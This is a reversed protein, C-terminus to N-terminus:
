RNASNFISDEEFALIAKEVSGFVARLKLQWGSNQLWKDERYSYFDACEERQLIDAIYEPTHEQKAYKSKM